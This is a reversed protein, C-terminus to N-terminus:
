YSTVTEEYDRWSQSIKELLSLIAKERSNYGVNLADLFHPGNILACLIDLLRQIAILFWRTPFIV